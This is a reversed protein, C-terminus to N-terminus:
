GFNLGLMKEFMKKENKFVNILVFFKFILNSDVRKLEESEWV